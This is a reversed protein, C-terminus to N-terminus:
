EAAPLTGAPHTLTYLVKGEYTGAAQGDAIYVAYTTEFTDPSVGTNSNKTAVATYSSPVAMYNGSGVKMSWASNAGGTATGTRIAWSADVGETIPALVTNGLTDGTYGVAYISYGNADNCSVSLTTKGIGESRTGSAITASHATDVVGSMTCASNVTVKAPASLGAPDSISGSAPGPAPLTEARTVDSALVAGALLTVATLIGLPLYINKEKQM